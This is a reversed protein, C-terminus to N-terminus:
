PDSLSAGHRRADLEARIEAHASEDLKFRSFLAAGVIYCVLPFAGYLSVIAIQTTM